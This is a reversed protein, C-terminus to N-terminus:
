SSASVQSEIFAMLADGLADPALCYDSFARANGPM